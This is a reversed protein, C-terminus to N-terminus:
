CVLYILKQQFIPWLAMEKSSDNGHKQSPTCFSEIAASMSEEIWAAGVIAVGRDSQGNMEEILTMLRKQAEASNPDYKM